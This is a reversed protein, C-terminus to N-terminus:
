IGILKNYLLGKELFEVEKIIEKYITDAYSIANNTV